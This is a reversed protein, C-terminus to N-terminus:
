KRRRSRIASDLIAEYLLMANEKTLGYYSPCCDLLEGGDIKVEPGYIDCCVTIRGIGFESRQDFRGRTFRATENLLNVLPQVDGSKMQNLARTEKTPILRFLLDIM